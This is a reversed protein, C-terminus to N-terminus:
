LLKNVKETDIRAVVHSRGRVSKKKAFANTSKYLSKMTMKTTPM